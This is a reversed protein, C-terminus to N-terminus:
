IKLIQNLIIQKPDELNRSESVTNQEFSTILELMKDHSFNNEEVVISGLLRNAEMANHYQENKQAIKMPIFISKKGLAILESVTGAGARSITCFSIKFLDIMENKLFKVPIYNASAKNKFEDFQMSGVQHVILFEQQLKNLNAQVFDNILKSGNGGGTFFLVPRDSESVCIDNLIVENTHSTLCEDRVPYGSYICIDSSIYKKTEEFSIFFKTALKSAIKNALGIRSTQEHVYIKKKTLFAAIVVPVSVFGGTSFVITNKNFKLLYLTAQIIGFCVKFIDKLNEFSLYRRLKGTVIEKYPINVNAILEKEIGFKSGIYSIEVDNYSKKIENILTIAPVVHGGSGGGTFIMKYSM